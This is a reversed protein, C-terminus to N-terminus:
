FNDRRWMHLVKDQPNWTALAHWGDPGRSDMPFGATSLVRVRESIVPRWWYPPMRRYASGIEKVSIPHMDLTKALREVDQESLRAQWLWQTDIFREICYYRSDSAPLNVDNLSYQLTEPMGKHLMPFDKYRAAGVVLLCVVAAGAVAATRRNKMRALARRVRELMGTRSLLVYVPITIITTFLPSLPLMMGRSYLLFPIFWPQLLIAPLALVAPVAALIPDDRVHFLAFSLMALFGALFNIGLLVLGQIIQKKM